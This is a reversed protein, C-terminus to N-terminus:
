EASRVLTVFGLLGNPTLGMPMTKRRLKDIKTEYYATLWGLTFIQEKSCQGEGFIIAAIASMKEFVDTMTKDAMIMQIAMGNKHTLEHLFQFEEVSIVLASKKRQLYERSAKKGADGTIDLIEHFFAEYPNGTEDVVFGYSNAFEFIGAASALPGDAFPYSLTLRDNEKNLVTIYCTQEPNKPTGKLRILDGPRLHDWLDEHMLWKGHNKPPIGVKQKGYM